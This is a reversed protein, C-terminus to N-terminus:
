QNSYGLRVWLAITVAVSPGGGVWLNTPSGGAERYMVLWLYRIVGYLVRTCNAVALGHTAPVAPPPPHRLLAAVLQLMADLLTINYEGLVAGAGCGRRPSHSCRARRKGSPSCSRWCGPRLGPDVACPLISVRAAGAVRRRGGLWFAIGLM